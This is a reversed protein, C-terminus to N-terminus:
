VKRLKTRLLLIEFALGAKMGVRLMLPIDPDALPAEENDLYLVAAVRGKVVIPLALAMSPPRANLATYFAQNAPTPPVVGFYFGGTELAAEFISSPEVPATLGRLTETELGGGRGALGRLSGEGVAFLACRRARTGCYDLLARNTADRDESAMLAHQLVELPDGAPPPAAAEVADPRVTREPERPPPSPAPTPQEAPLRYLDEFTVEADLPRGDLGLERRPEDPSSAAQPPSSASLAEPNPVPPALSIVRHADIRIRYHRELAQYMRYESTVWPEVSRSTAHRIEAVAVGDRPNLMAVRLTRGEIEFPCVRLRQITDDDLIRLVEPDIVLLQERSAYSAGTIESLAKGLSEEDVFGMKLLHSDIRGGFFSQTRRAEELQGPTIRQEDLLYQAVRKLDL